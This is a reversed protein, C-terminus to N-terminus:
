FLYGLAFDYHNTLRMGNGIYLTRFQSIEPGVIVNPAIHYFLNVGYLMNRSVDQADLAGSEYYQVGSFLHFDVRPITHITFQTWGGRSTVAYGSRTSVAYGQNVAGTGLSAVNEGSFFEGSWELRRFPNYFWDGSYVRSPISFGGAHTQSTHFGGALELRRDDDINHYFEFRGEAGPRASEMRVPVNSGSYPSAEHTQVIGVRARLGTRKTFAFDHEVRAQPLWLWLNGAGTLPSVGVQALSVPERPNFIPKDIGVTIKTTKWDLNIWGTRLRFTSNFSVGGTFFDMALSGNVTGGWLIQPGHYELGIVTQRLTAGVNNPGPTLSAVTPYEAAGGNHSNYYANFLAMGTIKIPFKQSAEVKTQAQEEIRSDQIAQREEISAKTPTATDPPAATMNTPAAPRTGAIETRLQQVQAALERNQQALQANQKEVRGLRELIQGIEASQAGAHVCTALILCVLSNLRAM